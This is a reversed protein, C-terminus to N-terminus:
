EITTNRPRKADKQREVFNKITEAIRKEKDKASEKPPLDAIYYDYKELQEPFPNQSSKEYKRHAQLIESAMVIECFNHAM